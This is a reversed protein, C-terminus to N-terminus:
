QKPPPSLATQPATVIGLTPMAKNLAAIGKAAVQTGELSILSLKPLGYLHVLGADTIATDELDLCLLRKAGKLERLAADDIATRKLILWDEVLPAIHRLGPGRVETSQLDLARLNPLGALHRLGADTIGTNSLHLVPM